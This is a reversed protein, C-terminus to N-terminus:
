AAVAVKTNYKPPKGGHLQQFQKVQQAARKMASARTLAVSMLSLKTFGKGSNTHRISTRERTTSVGYFVVQPGSRLEYLWSHRVPTHAKPKAVSAKPKAIAKYRPASVTAKHAMAARRTIVAKRASAAKAATVTVKKATSTFRRAGATVKTAGMKLRLAAPKATPTAKRAKPKAKPRVTAM